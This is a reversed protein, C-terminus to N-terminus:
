FSKWFQTCAQKSLDGSNALAIRLALSREKYESSSKTGKFRNWIHMARNTPNLEPLDNLELAKQRGFKILPTMWTYYIGSLASATVEPSVSRGDSCYGLGSDMVPKWDIDFPTTWVIIAFALNFAVPLVGSLALTWTADLSPSDMAVYVYLLQRFHAGSLIM